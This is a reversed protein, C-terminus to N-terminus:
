ILEKAIIFLAIVLTFYAFFAQLHKGDVRSAIKTSILMGGITCVLMIPLLPMQLPIGAQLDGSFGIISKLAIIFLSAGVAQKMPMGMLLVLAPIILFGGGAGLIGTLVGVVAGELAIILISKLNLPKSQSATAQPEPQTVTQRAKNLMMIASALMLGAFLLMIGMNKTLLFPTQLLTDPIAPMLYARALYVAVISPIAFIISSQLDILGKRFYGYAGFAATLGVILLSYGTAIEAPVQMLYVLIPVTLISGGGGIVGLVVGMVVAALYGLVELIM